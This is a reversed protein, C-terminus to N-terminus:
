IAEGNLGWKPPYWVAPLYRDSTFRQKIRSRGGPPTYRPHAVRSYKAVECFLNQCDVPKLPRGWLDRFKIGRREFEEEQRDATWYILDEDSWDGRDRFCKALGERAGPGAVVFDAEDFALAPGYNLDIAIQFALFPGFSPYRSLLLYLDRLSSTAVVGEGLRENLMRSVLQLHGTHKRGDVTVSVPPMIYAASYLSAGRARMGDLVTRYRDPDFSAISIEGIAEALAEWTEIRNFVKFLVTRFCVEAPEQDGAYIVHKILYQSTRDSARYANTFKFHQLIPDRTWPPPEGALRQFFISQRAAAFTWYADFVRTQRPPRRRSLTVIAV